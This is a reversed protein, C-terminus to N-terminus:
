TLLAKGGAAPLFQNARCANASVERFPQLSFLPMRNLPKSRPAQFEPNLGSSKASTELGLVRFQGM